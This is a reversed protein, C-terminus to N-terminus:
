ISAPTHLLEDLAKKWNPNNINLHKGGFQDSDNLVTVYKDDICYIILPHRSDDFEVMIRYEESFQGTVFAAPNRTFSSDMLLERLGQIQSGDLVYETGNDWEMWPCHAVSVTCGETIDRVGQIESGSVHFYSYLGLLVVLFLSIGRMRKLM